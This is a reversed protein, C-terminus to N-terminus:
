KPLNTGPSPPLSSTVPTTGPKALFDNLHYKLTIPNFDPHTRGYEAIQKLFNQTFALSNTHETLMQVAAPQAAALEARVFRWQRLLFVSLTGSVVILILLMSSVLQQLQACQSRLESVESQAPVPTQPTEM